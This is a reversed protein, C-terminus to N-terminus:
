CSTKSIFSQKLFKGTTNNDNIAVRAGALGDDEPPMDLVSLTIRGKEVVHMYGIRIEQVADTQALAPRILDGPM